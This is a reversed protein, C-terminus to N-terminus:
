SSKRGLGGMKCERGVRKEKVERKGEGEGRRGEERNGEMRGMKRGKTGSGKGKREERKREGERRGWKIKKGFLKIRNGGLSPPFEVKYM